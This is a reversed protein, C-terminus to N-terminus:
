KKKSIEGFCFIAISPRDLEESWGDNNNNDTPGPEVAQGKSRCIALTFPRKRDSLYTKPYRQKSPM